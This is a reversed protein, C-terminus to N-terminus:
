LYSCNILPSHVETKKEATSFNGKWTKAFLKVLSLFPQKPWLKIFYKFM